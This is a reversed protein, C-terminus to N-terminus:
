RLDEYNVTSFPDELLAWEVGEQRRAARRAREDMEAFEFEEDTPVSNVFPDDEYEAFSFESDKGPAPPTFAPKTPSAKRSRKAM